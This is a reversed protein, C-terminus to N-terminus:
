VASIQLSNFKVTLNRGLMNLLVEVRQGATLGKFTGKLGQLPGDNVIVEQDIKYFDLEVNEIFGQNNQLGLLEDIIAEDLAIPFTGDSLLKKVGIMYNIPTWPDKQIDLCIFLYGPFLPKIIKRMKRAHKVISIYTPCYVNYNHRKLKQVAILESNPKTNIVYWKNM